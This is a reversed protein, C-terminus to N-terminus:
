MTSAVAAIMAIGSAAIKAAMKCTTKLNMADNTEIDSGWTDILAEATCDDLGLAECAGTM